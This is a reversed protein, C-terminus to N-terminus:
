QFSSLESVMGISRLRHFNEQRRTTIKCLSLTSISTFVCSLLRWHWGFRQLMLNTVHQLIELTRAQTHIWSVRIFARTRVYTAEMSLALNNVYTATLKHSTQGCVTTANTSARAFLVSWYVWVKRRRKSVPWYVLQVRVSWNPIEISWIMVGYMSPNM